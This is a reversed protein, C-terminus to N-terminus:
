RGRSKGDVTWDVEPHLIAAVKEVLTVAEGLAVGPSLNFSLTVAPLQGLHNVTLPGAAHKFKALTDLPIPDGRSSRVYLMALASPEARYEPLLELIVKYQNNPTYITSIQRSAYASFLAEEVHRASLGLASAKDRDIEVQNEPNM